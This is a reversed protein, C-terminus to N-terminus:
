HSREYLRRRHRFHCWIKPASQVEEATSRAPLRGYMRPSHVRTQLTAVAHRPSRRQVDAGANASGAATVQTAGGAEVQAGGASSGGATTVVTTVPRGAAGAVMAPSTGNSGGAVTLDPPPLGIAKDGDSASGTEFSSGCGTLALLVLGAFLGRFM